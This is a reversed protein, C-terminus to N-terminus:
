TRGLLSDLKGSERAADIQAPSMGRLDERTLQKVGTTSQRAGQDADGVPRMASAQLYPKSELLEAVAASIAEANGDGLDNLDLFRVADEPDALKGTAQRIVNTELRERQVESLIENRAAEAAEKRAQDILKEQETKNAEEFQALQTELEKVRKAEREAEKARKKWENLAKVGEPRLAEDSTDPAQNSEEAAEENTTAVEEQSM